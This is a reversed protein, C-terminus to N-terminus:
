AELGLAAVLTGLADIQRQADWREEDVLGHLAIGNLGAILVNTVAGVGLPPDVRAILSELDTRAVLGWGALLGGGDHGEPFALAADIRLQALLRAEASIPLLSELLRALSAAPASAMTAPPTVREALRDFMLEVLARRSPAYHSVVTTSRAGMERAINRFTVASLGENRALALAADAIEAKRAGADVVRPM